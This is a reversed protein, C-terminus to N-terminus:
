MICTMPIHPIEDELYMDGCTTFGLETYFKELYQQASIKISDGPWQQTCFAISTAMLQKGYGHGRYNANTAVRGISCYSSYVLGKPLCRCYAVLVDKDWLMIHYSNQDRNDLDIYYCTQEMIFVTNRIQLIAYLETTNLEAFHKLVFNPM